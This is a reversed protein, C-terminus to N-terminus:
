SFDNSKARLKLEEIKLKCNLLEEQTKLRRSWGCRRLKCKRMINTRTEDPYDQMMNYVCNYENGKNDIYVYISSLKKCETALSQNKKAIEYIHGSEVNKNGGISSYKRKAEGTPRIRDLHGSQANIKGSIKGGMQKLVRSAEENKSSMLLYAYLDYKNNYITYLLKHAFIHEKYTLIVINSEEDTGGAHKPIVHHKNVFGEVNKRSRAKNM